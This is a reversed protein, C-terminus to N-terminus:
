CSPMCRPSKALSLHCAEDVEKEDKRKSAKQQMNNHRDKKKNKKKHKYESCAQKNEGNDTDSHEGRDPM